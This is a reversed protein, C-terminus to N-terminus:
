WSWRGWLSSSFTINKNEVEFIFHIGLEQFIVFMSLTFPSLWFVFSIKSLSFHCSGHITLSQKSSSSFEGPASYNNSEITRRRLKSHCCLNLWKLLKACSLLSSLCPYYRLQDPSPPSPSFGAQAKVALGESSSFCKGLHPKSERLIYKGICVCKIPGIGTNTNSQPGLRSRAHM